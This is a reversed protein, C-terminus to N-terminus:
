RNAVKINIMLYRCDLHISSGFQIFLVLTKYIKNTSYGHAIHAIFAKHINLTEVKSLVMYLM